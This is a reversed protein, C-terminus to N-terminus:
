ADVQGGRHHLEEGYVTFDKEIEALLETDGLRVMDGTTPGYVEAYHRRSLLAM